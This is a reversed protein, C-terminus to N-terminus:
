SKTSEAHTLAYVTPIFVLTLFTSVTLGGIVAIAMPQQLEAGEGIGIAIPLMGLVATATTMLIPKLRMKGANIIATMLDCGRVKESEICDFLVIANNVVTGALLVVGIGSNINLTKGTLLLAGSVGIAAVPISCMIILPQKLSQFQAALVMYVLVLALALAFSLERFVKELEGKEGVMRAEYGVGFKMEALIRKTQRYVSDASGAIDATIINVRNQESRIIKTTGFGEDITVFKSLVINEGTESKVIIKYISDKEKRDRESFRMRTDIEDDKERYKTAVEGYIAARVTSAVTAISVGLSAMKNRDINIRLEPDGQDISTEINRLAPIQSLRQKLDNGLAALVDSDRGYVELMFPKQNKSFISEIVDEKIRFELKVQDGLRIEARLAAIIDRVHVSRNRTLIVRILSNHAGRGSTREAINDEPDSGIKTYYYQVYRKQKLIGEVRACLASSEDLKTGKPAAIDITFEGPDIKPMVESDLMFFLGCGVVTVGMGALMVKKKNILSYHIVRNYLHIVADMFRDSFNFVLQEMPKVLASIRALFGFRELHAAPIRITTLMPILTMAAILACLNSFSITLALDGFVAGTLGSLFLIPLFVVITTIASAIVPIKVENIGDIVPTFRDKKKTKTGHQNEKKVIADLVVIASDVMMGVGLALGGLSITNLSVNRFYMLAFTGIVCVPISTAVVLSARTEKLFFWLVFFAIIGGIIAADSVSDVASRVFESQDYLRTISFEDKYKDRLVHMKEEVRRCTEITNKGPEKQILVGVSEQGNLRIICKRDKFDDKIDAIDGLYVPIGADNRGVVVRGIDALNKFEGITRVLYEKNGQDLTGAPFNYNALNINESVESLSINHAYLKAADLSVNIQRKDGGSIDALAVGDIRELFPLVEKEIRRRIDKFNGTKNVIAYIMIPDAKPDYKVVISKGADQPLQGKIIDVKEKTEILAYDMNTGWEFQATVLSLGELTESYVSTVGNVSSVAEEIYKTALKEVEAPAAGEYPTVITLKPFEINPLLQVPLKSLSIFGLLIVGLYVM